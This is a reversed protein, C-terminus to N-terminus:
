AKDGSYFEYTGYGSHCDGSICNALVSSSFLLVFLTLLTKM